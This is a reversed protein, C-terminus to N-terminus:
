RRNAISYMIAGLAVLALCPLLAALLPPLLNNTALAGSASRISFYSVLLAGGYAVGAVTRRRRGILTIPFAAFTIVLCALPDIFKRYYDTWTEPPVPKGSARLKEIHQRLRSSSLEFPFPERNEPLFRGIDPPTILMRKFHSSSVSHEPDEPLTYANGDFLYWSQNKYYGTPAWTIQVNRRDAIDFITAMEFESGHRSHIMYIKNVSGDDDKVASTFDNIGYLQPLDHRSAAVVTLKLSSKLCDPAVFENIAFSVGACSVAIVIFPLFIRNTSVGSTQLATLESDALMRHLVMMTGILVGAPLCRVIIEPLQLATMLFFLDVPCGFDKVYSLMKKVEDTFLLLGAPLTTGILLMVVFEYYCYRDLIKFM